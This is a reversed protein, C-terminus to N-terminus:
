KNKIYELFHKATISCEHNKLYCINLQTTIQPTIDTVAVDHILNYTALQKMLLAVGMNKQVLDIINEIKYDTYVVRPTFGESLCAKICLDYILVNTGLLIFDEEALDSLVINKNGALPHNRPLVAVLTDVSHSIRSFCDEGPQFERVFALEIEETLLMEKLEESSGQQINLKITPYERQFRVLIDTIGYQALVPISGINIQKSEEDINNLLVDSYEKQLKLIRNVYPLLLKGYKTLTVKGPTRIFLPVSLETEVSKIHKSLTSQTIYLKNAAEQFHGTESLIKFEYLYEINM